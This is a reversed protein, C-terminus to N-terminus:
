FSEVDEIQKTRLSVLLEGPYQNWYWVGGYNDGSEVLKVVFGEERLRKLQYIGGFGAGVILADLEPASDLSLDSVAGPMDASTSRNMHTPFHETEPIFSRGKVPPTITEFHCLVHM